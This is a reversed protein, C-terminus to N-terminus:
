KKASDRKARKITRKGRQKSAKGGYKIDKAARTTKKEKAYKAEIQELTPLKAEDVKGQLSAREQKWREIIEKQM